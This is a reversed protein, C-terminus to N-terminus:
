HNNSRLLILNQMTKFQKLRDIPRKLDIVALQM